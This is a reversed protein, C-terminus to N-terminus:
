GNSNEKRQMKGALERIYIISNEDIYKRNELSRYGLLAQEVTGVFSIILAKLLLKDESLGSLAVLQRLSYCVERWKIVKYWESKDKSGDNNYYQNTADTVLLLHFHKYIKKSYLAELSARYDDNKGLAAHEADTIKVEVDILVNEYLILIDIRGSEGERGEGVYRVCVERKINPKKGRLEFSKIDEECIKFLELLWETNDPMQKIIWALYDSYKEERVGSFSPNNSFDMLFPEQVGVRKFMGDIIKADNLANNFNLNQLEIGAKIFTSIDEWPAIPKRSPLGKGYEAWESLTDISAFYDMTNVTM